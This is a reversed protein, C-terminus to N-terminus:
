PASVIRRFGLSSDAKEWIIYRIQSLVEEVSDYTYAEIFAVKNGEDISVIKAYEIESNNVMYTDLADQIIDRFETSRMYPPKGKFWAREEAEGRKDVIICVAAQDAEDEGKEFTIRWFLYFGHDEEPLDEVKITKPHTEIDARLESLNM